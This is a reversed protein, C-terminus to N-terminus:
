PFTIDMRDHAWVTIEINYKTYNSNSDTTYQLTSGSWALSGVAIGTGVVFKEIV